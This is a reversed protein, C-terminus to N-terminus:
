RRRGEDDDSEDEEYFGQGTSWVGGGDMDAEENRKRRRELEAESLPTEDRESMALSGEEEALAEREAAGMGGQRAGTASRVGRWDASGGVGPPAGTSLAEYGPSGSSGAQAPTLAAGSVLLRYKLYNYLAIGLLAVCLGTVNIPTLEDGFVSSSLLITSVEKFIGAVSLTM